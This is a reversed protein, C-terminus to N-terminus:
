GELEKLLGELGEKIDNYSDDFNRTYWPDAVDSTKGAYEMLLHIKEDAKGNLIRSVGRINFKDMCIFLDYESADEKKLLVAYRETFPINNELLKKRTGHHITNGLEEPSVACSAIEYKESIGRKKLMDKFMFEAMPSRCINGHCVFMIRM